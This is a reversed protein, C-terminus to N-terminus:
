TICRLLGTCKVYADHASSEAALTIRLTRGARPLLTASVPVPHASLLDRQGLLSTRVPLILSHTSYSNGEERHKMVYAYRKRARCNVRPCTM